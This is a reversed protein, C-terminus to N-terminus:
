PKKSCTHQLLLAADSLELAILLREEPTLRRAANLKAKGLHDGLVSKRRSGNIASLVSKQNM